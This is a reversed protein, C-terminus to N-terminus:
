QIELLTTVITSTGPGEDSTYKILDFTKTDFYIEAKWFHSKFGRLTVKIKQALYNKNGVKINSIDLKTAIMNNKSFDDPNLMYFKFEKKNSELFPTLGFTFDQVWIKNSLKYSKNIKKNDIVGSCLLLNNKNIFEYTKTKNESKFSLNLLKYDKTYKLSTYDKDTSKSILINENKKSLIINSKTNQNNVKNNYVFSKKTFYDSFSFSCLGIFLFLLLLRKLM